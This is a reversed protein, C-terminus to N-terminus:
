HMQLSHDYNTKGDKVNNKVWFRDYFCSFNHLHPRPHMHDNVVVANPMCNRTASIKASKGDVDNTNKLKLQLHDSCMYRLHKLHSTKMTEIGM